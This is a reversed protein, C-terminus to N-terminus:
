VGIGGNLKMRYLFFDYSVLMMFCASLVFPYIYVRHPNPFAFIGYCFGDALKADIKRTGGIEAHNM